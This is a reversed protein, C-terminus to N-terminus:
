RCTSSAHWQETRMGPLVADDHIGANNVVIQIPGRTLLRECALRAADGDTVDFAVSEGSGGAAVIREVVANAAELKANAHAIVHVGDGGLREAIAQGLAGSAGTVLARRVGTPIASM